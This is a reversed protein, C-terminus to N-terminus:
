RKAKQGNSSSRPTRSASRVGASSSARECPLGFIDRFRAVEPSDLELRERGRASLVFAKVIERTAIVVWVELTRKRRRERFRLLSGDGNCFWVM